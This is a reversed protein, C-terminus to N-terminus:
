EKFYKRTRDDNRLTRLAYHLRSNVTGEPIRLALAIDRIEMDDVFRMLLVERQAEPIASLALALETRSPIEAEQRAPLSLIVQEDSTYRRQKRRAAVALNRVVPYLFTTMHATLVLRPSKAFLYLFTEQRVDLALDRDGTFRWALRYVWESYRQYLAESASQDGCNIADVLAEDSMSDIESM